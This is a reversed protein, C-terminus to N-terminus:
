RRRRIARPRQFLHAPSVPVRGYQTGRCQCLGAVRSVPAPGDEFRGAGCRLHDVQQSCRISRYECRRYRFQSERDFLHGARNQLRLVVDDGQLARRRFSSTGIDRPANPALATAFHAIRDAPTDGPVAQPIATQAPDVARIRAQWDSQNLLALDKLSALTKNSLRVMTDKVLPLHGNLLKGASLVTDLAALDAKTLSKDARLTKWTPGLRLGGAAYAQIFATQVHESVGGADLLDKLPTTGGIYPSNGVHAVRLADLM